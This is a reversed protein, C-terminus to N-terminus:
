SEEPTDLKAALGTVSSVPLTFMIGTSPANLDGCITTVLERAAVLKESSEIVSIVTVNRDRTLSALAQLNGFAPMEPGLVRGMGRSDLVTAGTIGIELFGALLQELKEYENLICVLLEM